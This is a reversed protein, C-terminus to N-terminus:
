EGSIRSDLPTQYDAGRERHRPNVPETLIMAAHENQVNRYEMGSELAIM